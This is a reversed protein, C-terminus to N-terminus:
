GPKRAELAFAEIANIDEGIVRGHGDVGQFVPDAYIGAAMSKPPDFGAKQLLDRLEDVAYVHRHGHGYFSLNIADALTAGPNRMFQRSWGLYKRTADSDPALVMRALNELSPTVVRFAGGPRLVRFVETIMTVAQDKEIHEITHECFVASFVGDVFPFRRTFDLYDVSPLPVSDTNLWGPLINGGCGLQLKLEVAGPPRGALAREVQLQLSM